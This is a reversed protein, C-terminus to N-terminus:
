APQEVLRAPLRFSDINPELLRLLWSELEENGVRALYPDFMTGALAHDEDRAGWVLYAFAKGVLAATNALAAICRGIAQPETYNVKFEVWETESPLACLGFRCTAIV